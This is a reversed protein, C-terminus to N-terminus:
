FGPKQPTEEVKKLIQWVGTLSLSNDHLSDILGFAQLSLARVTKTFPHFGFASALHKGSAALATALPEGDCV